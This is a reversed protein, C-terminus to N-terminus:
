TGNYCNANNFECPNGFTKEDGKSRVGCVPDYIRACAKQPCPPRVSTGMVFTVGLITLVTKFICLNHNNKKFNMLNEGSFNTSCVAYKVLSKRSSKFSSNNYESGM